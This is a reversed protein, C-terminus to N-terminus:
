FSSIKVLIITTPNKKTVYIQPVETPSQVLVFGGIVIGVM